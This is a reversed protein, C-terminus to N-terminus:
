VTPFAVIAKFLDGDIVIKLTGKQLETLNKAISLGLGSGETHRSSDGRVFREMLEESTINLSYRSINRLTIVVHDEERWADLYVRTGGQSYKCVNGLLNDFIRWLLKGDAMIHVGGSRKGVCLALDAAALKERYEGLAQELFVDVDTDVMQPTINGTSAKSVEILDEILKKLRASQRDMVELYEKTTENEIPQKKMLDVYNIISTLPTKIDHSVNTILETKMRESRLKSEVAEGINERIHNLHDAHKKFHGFMSREDIQYDIDGEAIKDAGRYLRRLFVAALFYLALAVLLTMSILFVSQVAFAFLIFVGFILLILISQPVLPIEAIIRCAACIKRGFWKTLRWLQKAVWLVLKWLHVACWYIVTNKWWANFRVRTSVSMLAGLVLFAMAFLLAGMGFLWVITNGHEWIHWFDYLFSDMLNLIGALCAVAGGGTLLLYVDLPIRDLFCRKVSGDTRRGAMCLLWVLSGLMVLGDVALLLFLTKDNVGSWFEYLADRDEYYASAALVLFFATVVSFLFVFTWFFKFPLAYYWHSGTMKEEERVEEREGVPQKSDDKM